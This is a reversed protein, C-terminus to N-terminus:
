VEVIDGVTADIVENLRARVKPDNGYRIAQLLLDRLPNGEFAEGLM